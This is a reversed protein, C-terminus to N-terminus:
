LHSPEFLTLLQPQSTRPLMRKKPNCGGADQVRVLVPRRSFIHIMCLGTLNCLLSDGMSEPDSALQNHAKLRKPFVPPLSGHHPSSQIPSELSSVHGMSLNLDLWVLRTERCNKCRGVSPGALSEKATSESEGVM